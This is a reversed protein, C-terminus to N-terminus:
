DEDGEEKGGGTTKPASEESLLAQAGSVVVEDGASFSSVGTVFYGGSVPNSVPVEVRDFGTESKKVYVWAKDQLWVVASAPVFFGQQRQTGASPMQATVSMGPALRGESSPAIYIFSMGQIRPNTATARSVFRARIAAGSPTMVLVAKPIGKLPAAPSVTLQVLVDKAEVVRRFAPKYGIIWQSIAAGWNLSITDKATKLAGEANAEEAKGAALRAQAEQLRRDSVNKNSANLVKLRAYEQGSSNVQAKAKALGSEAAVYSKYLEGLGGAALVEGYAEVQKQYFGPKLATVTVADAEQGEKSVTVTYGPAQPATKKSATQRSKGGCSAFLALASMIVAAM